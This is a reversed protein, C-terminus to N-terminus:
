LAKEFRSHEIAKITGRSQGGGADTMTADPGAALLVDGPQTGPAVQDPMAVEVPEDPFQMATLASLYKDEIPSYAM